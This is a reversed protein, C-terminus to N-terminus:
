TLPLDVHFGSLCTLYGTEPPLNWSKPGMDWERACSILNGMKEHNRRNRINGVTKEWNKQGRETKLFIYKGMEM